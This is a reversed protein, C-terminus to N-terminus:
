LQGSHGDDPTSVSPSFSYIHKFALVENVSCLETIHNEHYLLVVDEAIEEKGDSM